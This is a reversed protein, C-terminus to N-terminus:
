TTRDELITWNVGDSRYVIMDNDASLSEDTWDASDDYTAGSKTRITVGGAIDRGLITYTKGKAEAVGPLNVLATATSTSTLVIVLTTQYPELNIAQLLDDSTDRYVYVSNPWAKGEDNLFPHSM